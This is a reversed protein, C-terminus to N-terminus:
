SIKRMIRKFASNHPNPPNIFYEYTNSKRSILKRTVLKNFILRTLGFRITKDGIRSLESIRNVNAAIGWLNLDHIVNYIHKASISITKYGYRVIIDIVRDRPDLGSTLHPSSLRKAGGEKLLLTQIHSDTSIDTLDDSSAISENLGLRNLIHNLTEELQDTQVQKIENM